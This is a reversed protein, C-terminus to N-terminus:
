KYEHKISPINKRKIQCCLSSITAPINNIPVADDSLM